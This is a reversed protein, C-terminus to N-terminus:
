ISLGTVRSYEAGVLQMQTDWSIRREAFARMEHLHRKAESAWRIFFEIDVPSDNAPIKLAFSQSDFTADSGSYAFPIGRACYERNKLSKFSHLSKRHGGLVGVAVDAEDFLQCLREGSVYGHFNVREILKLQAVQEIYKKATPTATGGAFNITVEIEGHRDYYNRLGAILRDYGHWYEMSSVALISFRNHQRSMKKLPTDAMDVGNDIQVTQVGFISGDESYTLIRDVYKAFSKRSLRELWLSAQLAKGADRYEDDYPYTPIEIFIIVGLKKVSELFKTFIPSAFHTYRIYLFEIKESSIYKLVNEFKFRWKWKRKLAFSDVYEDVLNGDILRGRYEGQDDLALDSLAVDFGARRLAEVQAKM